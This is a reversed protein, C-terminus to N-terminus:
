GFSKRSKESSVHFAIGAIVLGYLLRPSTIDGSLGANVMEFIFLLLLLQLKVRLRFLCYGGFGLFVLFLAGRMWGWEVVIELFINHPYTFNMFAFEGVGIGQPYTIISDITHQFMALRIFYSTDDAQGFSFGRYGGDVGLAEIAVIVLVLGYISIGMILYKNKVPNLIVAIFASVAFALVPGRSGTAIMGLFLAAILPAMLIFRIRALILAYLAAVCSMGFLRGMWIPNSDGYSLRGTDYEGINSLFLVLTIVGLVILARDMQNLIQGSGFSLALIFGFIFLVGSFTIIKQSDGVVGMTWQSGIFVTLCISISIVTLTYAPPASRIGAIAAIVLAAITPIALLPLRGDSDGLLAALPYAFVFVSLLLWKLERNQTDGLPNSATDITM